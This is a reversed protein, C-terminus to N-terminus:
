GKELLSDIKGKRRVKKQKREMIEARTFKDDALAKMGKRTPMPLNKEAALFERLAANLKEEERKIEEPLPQNFSPLAHPVCEELQHTDEPM